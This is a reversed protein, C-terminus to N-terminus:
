LGLVELIDYGTNGQVTRTRHVKNGPIEFPFVVLFGYGVLQRKYVDLHTYSVAKM